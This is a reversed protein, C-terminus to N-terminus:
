FAVYDECDEAGCGECKGMADGGEGRKRVGVRGRGEGGQEGL